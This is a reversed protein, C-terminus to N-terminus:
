SSLCFSFRESILLREQNAGAAAVPGPGPGLGPQLLLALLTSLFSAWLRLGAGAPGVMVAWSRPM